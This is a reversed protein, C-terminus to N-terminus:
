LVRKGMQDDDGLGRGGFLWFEQASCDQWGTAYMRGAPRNLTSANGIEGYHGPIDAYIIGGVHSWTSTDVNYKWLDSLYGTRFSIFGNYRKNSPTEYYLTGKKELTDFGDIEVLCGFSKDFAIMADLQVQDRVLYGMKV